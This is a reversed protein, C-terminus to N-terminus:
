RRTPDLGTGEGDSLSYPDFQVIEEGAWENIERMTAQLPELENAVFVRAAKEVDGFGGTNQPIIGMMQPPIRHGALQDDRTINKINWFDDKAAVESVPIIQVGDKKGNPSYMFLNKFNGVGKSERLAQRMADIDKQDQAPDSVYMIFGAHSGNLYYRRRFLTANENLWASQLSGIYDPVGYIGQDIDPELLHVVRGRPLETRELYNPAWWYRDGLGRRMYKAALHRFPLRKGLRGRVEELYGNGFVLYDLALASFARRGLLPHPKFTRLLINRKVQLASGHHATARYSKALIELPVPPEFWEDGSLYIGEYFADRMSTVPEPDGFSFAQAQPPTSAVPSETSPSGGDSTSYAPVRVRPKETATM